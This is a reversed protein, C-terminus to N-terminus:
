VAPAAAAKTPKFPQAGAAADATKDKQTTKPKPASDELPTGVLKLAGRTEKEAIGAAM